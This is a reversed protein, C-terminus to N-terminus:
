QQCAAVPLEEILATQSAIVEAARYVKWGRTEFEARQEWEHELLLAILPEEWALEATAVIEGDEAALEYGAQPLMKGAAELQTILGRLSADVLDVFITQEQGVLEPVLMAGYLGDSLGSSTVFNVPGAFQLLNFWQLFRRWDQKWKLRDESAAEDFLRFSAALGNLGNPLERTDGRVVYGIASERVAVCRFPTPEGNAAKDPMVFSDGPRLLSDEKNRAAEEEWNRANLRTALWVRAHLQWNMAKGGALRFLFWDFATRAYMKDWESAGAPDLKKLLHLASGGEAFAPEQTGKAVADVDDWTLSWVHFKGSRAIAMRQAMDMGIRLNAPDAHYEFGDTFVAIPLEGAAQREPHFVFDAISMRSVNQEPGLAVQPEILYNRSDTKLYYGQKGNVVQTALQWEGPRWRRLAEIFRAELESEILRNMRINNLRDTQKLDAQHELISTLLKLAAARSTNLRDHRGHYALLCRYCGDKNPDHQCGCAALVEQALRFVEFLTDPLQMLEKLYGTGGPVGDYLVLFRKRVDSGEIPEDYTTSLLHGPEGRFKKRLGLDMAAVFSNLNKEVEATAVPLLMRIAESTLERYLFSASEEVAKEEKGYFPCYRAHDLKGKAGKRIKGCGACFRFPRDAWDRGAIRMQGDGGGREGFNVERITLKRFFEYGFPVEESDIFYAQTIEHEDRVVFMNKQYFQPERDDSEDFSRSEQDTMTSIVQRMRLMQRSQGEDAWMASKCQPCEQRGQNLVEELMFSCDNCFRWGEVKSLDLNVQDIELRRKEAHFFNAPALESLAASAPRPYKEYHIDYREGNPGPKSKRRIIVSKLTVGAEPFAYNPLLGEDTLFEVVNQDAIERALRILADREERLSLLEEEFEKPRAPNKEMERLREGLARIRRRLGRFETAVRQLSELMGRRMGKDSESGDRSFEEIKRITYDQIDGEFMALFGQELQTRHLDFFKLFNWPFLEPGETEPKEIAEIVAQMRHPILSRGTEVWRDFCYATFQRELVASANLYCGPTEVVGQIMEDPESFFFLDHPRGNAVALIFANGDVRGARGARQLYNSPKPPISCMALSSLDGINIGMELTPTCSLLNPDAPRNHEIFGREIEERASRTLLGTHEATFVRQTDGSEYMRRYYDQTEPVVRLHGPCAADPCPSGALRKAGAPSVSLAHGRQDCRLQVVQRIVQLASPQFGWVLSFKAPKEFFAGTTVLERFVHRYIEWTFKTVNGDVLGLCKGLWNEYWSKSGAYAFRSGPENVLFIPVRSSRGVAPRHVQGLRNGLLFYDGKSEQYRSLDAQDVGGKNKMQQFIGELFTALTPGDLSELGGFENRLRELLSETVREMVEHKLELTSCNTKELTRGIRADLTYETWIEWDLRRRVLQILNSEAPLKGHQRLYEFDNLWEMDPPLFAAVFRAEGMSTEWHHLFRPTLEEFPVSDAPLIKQIAGRLNFSYTRAGFFGARHSADQVNDSFALMRKDRNFSSGFIQAILVSTLSAARSGLISLSNVGGCANCDHNGVIKGSAPQRAWSHFVWVILQEEAGTGCRACDVAASAPYINLCNPCLYEPIGEGSMGPFVFRVHQSHAFFSEYFGTLDAQLTNEADKVVGGWGTIGCERCHIVPLSRKLEEPKLDDAFALEPRKAVRSVMRRLERLWLQYRVNVLPQSGQPTPVRAQSVLAMFSTFLLALYDGDSHSFAPVQKGIEDLLKLSDKSKGDLIYLLNRLFSHSRLQQGLEHRWAPDDWDAITGGFWLRYQAAIYQPVDSYSLPDLEQKATHEPPQFFRVVQGALFEDATLVSEGILSDEAFSEGFVRKAYDALDSTIEPRSDGLTASTGVCILHGKPTKVREKVRRILCALDAGQAGDFSHLEDVVLYRLTDAVNHKWLGADQARMLLYDLMKYNTLLIDPPAARMADRNSILETATMVASTAADPGDQGLYLGATVRGRLESNDFVLKALRRAQDTALANMPYILIAKIGPRGQQQLCYDLIPYLFCETKGSGTGTAVITSLGAKSDLREWARQQHRYPSFNPPLIRHFQRPGGLAPAFPLKLSVYAGRFVEDRNFLREITESFFPNTIPFTTLLFDQLGRRVQTSLVSPIM